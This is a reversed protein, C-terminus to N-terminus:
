KTVFTVYFQKCRNKILIAICDEISCNLQIWVYYFGLVLVDGGFLILGGLWQLVVVLGMLVLLVVAKPIAVSQQKASVLIFHWGALLVLAFVMVEQHWGIWPLIHMPALWSCLLLLAYLYVM